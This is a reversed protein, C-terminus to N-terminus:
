AIVSHQAADQAALLVREPHQEALERPRKGGLFSSTSEFWGALQVGDLQPLTAMVQKILPRPTYDSRLAYQPYMDRGDRRIAFLQGSTKWRNAAAAPNATGHNGLQGIQEASLWPTGQYINELARAQLKAMRIDVARLPVDQVLLQVLSDRNEVRRLSGRQVMLSVLEPLSRRIGQIEPETPRVGDPLNVEFTLTTMDHEHLEHLM